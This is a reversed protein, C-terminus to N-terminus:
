RSFDSETSMDDFSLLELPITEHERVARLRRLEGRTVQYHGDKVSYQVQGAEIAQSLDAMTMHQRKRTDTAM